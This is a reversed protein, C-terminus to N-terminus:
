QSLRVGWLAREGKTIFLLYKGDPSVHITAINSAVGGKASGPTATLSTIGSAIDFQFISDAANYLGQHWLDLYNAPTATLPAACYALTPNLPSWACKEPFPNFPLELDKGTAVDHAYTTRPTNTQASQYLIKSFVQNATASLGQTYVLQAMTGDLSSVAFAVGPTGYAEKSQLLLTNNTPWSVLVQLLPFTFLKVPVSGDARAIYGVAGASTPLLYVVSKSDPSPALTLIGDPLFRVKNTSTAFGIFLTKRVGSEGYQVLVGSGDRLWQADAIGPITTNSVIRSVAEPVDVPIDLVHGSDQMVYRALTTTPNYTQIFFADVVPGDALKFIKQATQNSTDTNTPITQTQNQNGDGTSSNGFIQTNQNTTASIDSPASGQKFFMYWAGFLFLAVVGVVAIGVGVKKLLM